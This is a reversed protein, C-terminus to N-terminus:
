EGGMQGRELWFLDRADSYINDILDMKRLLATRLEELRFIRTLDDMIKSLADGAVIYMTPDELSNALQVRLSKLKQRRDVAKGRLAVFDRMASDMMKNIMVLAHWHARVVECIDLLTPVFYDAPDEDINRCLCLISRRSSCVFLRADVNVSFLGPVSRTNPPQVYAPELVLDEAISRFVIEAVESEYPRISLV